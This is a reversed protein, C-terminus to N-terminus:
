ETESLASFIMQAVSLVAILALSAWFYKWSSYRLLAAVFTYTVLFVNICWLVSTVLVVTGWM